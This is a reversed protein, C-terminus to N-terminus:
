KVQSETYIACHENCGTNHDGHCFSLYNENDMLIPKHADKLHGCEKCKEIAGFNNTHTTMWEFFGFLFGEKTHVPCIPDTHGRRMRRGAFLHAEDHLDEGELDHVLDTQHAKCQRCIEKALQTDDPHVIWECKCWENTRQTEIAAVYEIALDYLQDQAIHFVSDVLGNKFLPNQPM